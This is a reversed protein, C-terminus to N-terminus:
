LRRLRKKALKYKVDLFAKKRFMKIFHLYKQLPSHTMHMKSEFQKTVKLFVNQKKPIGIAKGTKRFWEETVFFADDPRFVGKMSPISRKKKVM